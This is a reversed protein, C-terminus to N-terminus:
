FGNEEKLGHSTDENWHKGNVFYKFAYKGGPQCPIEAKWVGEPNKAFAIADPQWDNFDGVLFVNEAADDHYSFIIKKGEIRPPSYNEHTLFHTGRGAEAKMEGYLQVNELSIAAQSALIQCIKIREPTFAGSVANNELCLLGRLRGQNIIPICMISRPQCRLIYSDNGYTQDNKADTLVVSELTREAFNIVSLPLNNAKYIPIADSLEVDTSDLSDEAFVLMEGDHELVLSGRQAGANEITIRIM